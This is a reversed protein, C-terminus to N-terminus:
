PMRAKERGNTVSQVPNIYINMVINLFEYNCSNKISFSTIKQHKEWEVM